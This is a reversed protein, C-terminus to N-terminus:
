IDKGYFFSEAQTGGLISFIILTYFMPWFFSLFGITFYTDKDTNFIYTEFFIFGNVCIIFVFVSIIIQHLKIKKPNISVNTSDEDMSLFLSGLGSMNVIIFFVYIGFRIEDM